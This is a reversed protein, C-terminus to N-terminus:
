AGTNAYLAEYPNTASQTRIPPEFELEGDNTLPAQAEPGEWPGYHMYALLWRRAEEKTYVLCQEHDIKGLSYYLFRPMTTPNMADVSPDIVLDGDEIWAHGYEIFPECQLTPRGHVLRANETLKVSSLNRMVLMSAANEYCEGDAKPM